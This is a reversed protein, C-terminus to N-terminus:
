LLGSEGIGNTVLDNGAEGPRLDVCDVRAKDSTFIAAGSWVYGERGRVRDKWDTSERSPSVELFAGSSRLLLLLCLPRLLRTTQHTLACKLLPM